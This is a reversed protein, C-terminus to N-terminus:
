AVAPSAATTVNLSLTSGMGPKGLLLRFLRVGYASTRSWVSLPPEQPHRGNCTANLKLSEDHMMYGDPCVWCRAALPRGM